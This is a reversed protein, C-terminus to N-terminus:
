FRRAGLLMYRREPTVLNHEGRHVNKKIFDNKHHGLFQVHFKSNYLLVLMHNGQQYM